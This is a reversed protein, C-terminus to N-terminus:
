ESPEEMFHFGFIAASSKDRKSTQPICVEWLLSKEDITELNPELSKFNLLVDGGELKALLFNEKKSIIRINLSHINKEKELLVKNNNVFIGDSDAEIKFAPISDSGSVLNLQFLAVRGRGSLYKFQFDISNSGFNTKRCIKKGFYDSGEWVIFGTNGSVNVSKTKIYNGTFNEPYKDTNWENFDWISGEIVKPFQSILNERRSFDIEAKETFASFIWGKAGSSFVVVEIWVGSKGAITSNKLDKDIIFLFEGSKLKAVNPNEIGPGSRLNINEGKSFLIKNKFDTEEIGAFYHIFDYTKEKSYRSTLSISNYKLYESIVASFEKPLLRPDQALLSQFLAESDHLKIRSLIKEILAKTHFYSKKKIESFFRDDLQWYKRGGDTVETVKCKCKKQIRNKEFDDPSNNIRKELRSISASAFM